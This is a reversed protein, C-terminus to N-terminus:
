SRSMSAVCAFARAIRVLAATRENMRELDLEMWEKLILPGMGDAEYALDLGSRAAERDALRHTRAEAAQAELDDFLREWRM